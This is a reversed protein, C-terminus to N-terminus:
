DSLGEPNGKGREAIDRDKLAALILRVTSVARTDRARMAEKLAADFRQRLDADGKTSQM